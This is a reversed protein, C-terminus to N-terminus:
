DPAPQAVVGMFEGKVNLNRDFVVGASLPRRGGARLLQDFRLDYFHVIYGGDPTPETETIPFKAWDLYVRGLYSAKAALTAPTEAPKDIRQLNNGPDVEPKSSDVDTLVFSDRTEVVGHWTFPNIYTPFAGVRIPEEQEYTRARLANVARRHEFDRVGWLIVMASLAVVAAARGRPGKQKRGIEQDVLGFLAPVILGLTLAVLLVPEVIFVIDWEFWKEWFPWFPRVGYNNTFDLLIHSLGAIYALVFLLGWSPPLNPDNTKRGRLRWVLYMFGVVVASVLILGLFSHTFGRHHAFTFVPGRFRGLVDLDPAEAALTM